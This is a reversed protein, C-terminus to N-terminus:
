GFYTYKEDKQPGVQNPYIIMFNTKMFYKTIFKPMKEMSHEYSVSSKRALAFILMTNQSIDRSIVLKDNYDDLTKFNYSVTVKLKNLLFEQTEVAGYILLENGTNVIIQSIRKFWDCFGSELHAKPPLVLLYKKVTNIPQYLKSIYITSESKNLLDSTMKGFFSDLLSAKEHLGIFFHKVEREKITNIIGAAINIDYRLIPKLEIDASAAYKKSVDILNNARNLSLTNENSKTIIHLGYIQHHHKKDITSIALHILDETTAKNALGILINETPATDKVQQNKMDHAAIKRGARQTVFSSIASTILIMVVVANFVSEDLLRLPKGSETQGLIIDFGILAIALASAVRANSLGFILQGENKSLKFIRQTSKAALYKSLIAVISLSLAIILAMPGKFLVHYDILMGVGILFFPIFIANGIFDIRNMLPSTRPILRNLALGAFFAGVIPELGVLMAFFSSLFVVTLVYIYQLVNDSVYKLFVRSLAPFGWLVVGGFLLIKGFFMLWYLIEFENGINNTAVALILLASVDAILTGAIAIHVAQNKTIGLKSIIPYTVLTHSVLISGILVSASFSYNFIFYFVPVGLIIPFLITVIGFTIGKSKNKVFENLDIELGAIFMLYLLGVTGFLEISSDRPILNFGFEGILIGAIIFGIIAPIKIRELVLPIILIISLLVVFVLVPDHWPLSFDIHM